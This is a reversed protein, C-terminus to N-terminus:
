AEPEIGTAHSFALPHEAAFDVRMHAIMALEGTAAYLERLIELRLTERMGIIFHAFNGAIISGENTGTGLNIPVATTVLQPIAAIKAPAMRPDGDANLAGVLTGDERPHMIFATPEGANATLLQTRARVLPAYVGGTYASLAGGVDFTNIGSINVLGQPQNDAGTGFLGARDVELAMAQTIANVLAAEINLSDQLLERSFKVLVALSKPALTVAGFTPDSAAVAGAEARWAPTPDATLKAIVNQDSTLPVTRAGARVLVSQRRLRDILAASLVTPVTYGGASDTGENLARRETDTKAGFAFARLLAGPSVEARSEPEHRAAWDSFREEPRLAIAVESRDTDAERQSFWGGTPDYGTVADDPIPRREAAASHARPERNGSATRHDKETALADYLSMLGEHADSLSRVIADDSNDEMSDILGRSLDAVARQRKNLDSWSLTHPEFSNADPIGIARLKIGAHKKVAIATREDMLSM